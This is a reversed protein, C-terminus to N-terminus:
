YLLNQRQIIRMEKDVQNKIKEDILSQIKNLLTSSFMIRQKNAFEHHTMLTQKAIYFTSRLITQWIQAFTSHSTQNYKIHYWTLKHLEFDNVYLWTIENQSYRQICKFNECKSDKIISFTFYSIEILERNWM